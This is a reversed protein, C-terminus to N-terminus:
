EIRLDILEAKALWYWTEGTNGTVRLRLSKNVGNDADITLVLSSASAGGGPLTTVTSDVLTVTGSDNREILGSFNYKQKDSYDSKYAIISGDFSILNKLQLTAFRSPTGRLLLEKQVNDTTVNFWSLVELNCSPNITDTLDSYETLRTRVNSHRRSYAYSGLLVGSGNGNSVNYNGLSVTNNTQISSKLGLTAVNSAEVISFNGVNLVNSGINGTGYGLQLNLNTVANALSIANSSLSAIWNTGTFVLNIATGVNYSLNKGQIVLEILGPSSSDCLITLSDNAVFGFTSLEFRRLFTSNTKLILVSTEGIETKTYTVNSSLTISTINTKTVNSALTVEGNSVEVYNGLTILGGNADNTGVIYTLDAM